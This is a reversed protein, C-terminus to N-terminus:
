IGIMRAFHSAASLALRTFEGHNVGLDWISMGLASIIATIAHM